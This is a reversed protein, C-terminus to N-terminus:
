SGGGLARAGNECSFSVYFTGAMGEVPYRTKIGGLRDAKPLGVLVRYGMPLWPGSNYQGSYWYAAGRGRSVEAM